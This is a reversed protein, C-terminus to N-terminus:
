CEQHSEVPRLRVWAVDIADTKIEFRGIQVNREYWGQAADGYRRMDPQIDIDESGGSLGPLRVKDRNACIKAIIRRILEAGAGAMTNPFRGTFYDNYNRSGDGRAGFPNFQDGIGPAAQM